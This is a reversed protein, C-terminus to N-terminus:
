ADQSLAHAVWDMAKDTAERERKDYKLSEFGHVAGPVDIVELASEFNGTAEIVANQTDAFSSYEEGVRLMLKPLEPAGTIAQRCDFREVDGPWDCPPALVPYSWVVARLWSPTERLWDAALPGGASFFWLAIRDPDVQPARRVKEVVEAIDQASDPYREMDYLRHDFTVGVLGTSAALDSYGIFTPWHRPSPTQGEPVPGGHIFIVAPRQDKTDATYLDFTERAVHKAPKLGYFFDYDEATHQLRPTAPKAQIVM